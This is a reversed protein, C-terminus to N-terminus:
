YCTLGHSSAPKLGIAIPATTKETTGMYVRLGNAATSPPPPNDAVVMQGGPCIAVDSIVQSMATIATTGLTGAVLDFDRINGNPYDSVAIRAHTGDFAVRGAFAFGGLASNDVMCGVSGLTGSTVIREVCGMGTGFDITPLLLDGAHPAGAPIQELLAIPNKTMLTITQEVAGTAPNVVYVKGTGRPPLNVNTDDLLGCAFFLKNNSLAVSSCNPKGDPDDASLDIQTVTSSSRSVIVGGKNGLTAVFLKDGIAVADQPNSGAGTGIQAVLSYDADSLITVNNGSARNIVLLESGQHRLVPDEGVAGAPAVNMAITNNTMDLASMVGPHGPVFDGAVVVARPPLPAADVTPDVSGDPSADHNDGCATIAAALLIVPLLKTM